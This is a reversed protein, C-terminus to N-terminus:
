VYKTEVKTKPQSTSLSKLTFFFKRIVGLNPVLVFFHLFRNVFARVLLTTKQTMLLDAQNAVELFILCNNERKWLIEM